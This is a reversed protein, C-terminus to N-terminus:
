VSAMTRKAWEAAKTPRTEKERREGTGKKRQEGAVGECILHQRVKRPCRFVPVFGGLQLLQLLNTTTRGDEKGRGGGWTPKGVEEYRRMGGPVACIHSRKERM